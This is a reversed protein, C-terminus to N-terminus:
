YATIQDLLSLQNSRYSQVASSAFQKFNFTQTSSLSNFDRLSLVFKWSHGDKSNQKVSGKQCQSAARVCDARSGVYLFYGDKEARESNKLKLGKFTPFVKSQPQPKPQPQPQPEQQPHKGYKAELEALDKRIEDAIKQHANRNSVFIEAQRVLSSTFCHNPQGFINAAVEEKTTPLSEFFGNDAYHNSAQVLHNRTHSVVQEALSALILYNGEQAILNLKIAADIVPTELVMSAEWYSVRGDRTIWSVLDQIEGKSVPIPQMSAPLHNDNTPQTINPNSM